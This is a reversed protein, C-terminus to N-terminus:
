RRGRYKLWIFLAALLFGGLLLMRGYSAETFFGILDDWANGAEAVVGQALDETKQVVGGAFLPLLAACLLTMMVCAALGKHQQM